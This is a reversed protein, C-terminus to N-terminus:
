QFNIKTSSWAGEGGRIGVRCWGDKPGVGPVGDGPLLLAWGRVSVGV